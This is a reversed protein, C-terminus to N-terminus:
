LPPLPFRERRLEFGVRPANEGRLIEGGRIFGVNTFLNKELIRRSALNNALTQATLVQLDLTSFSYEVLKRVAQTIAGKGSYQREGLLYWVDATKESANLDGLAVLGVPCGDIEVIFLRNRPNMVMIGVLKASVTKGRWNLLWQNTEPDSLWSAVRQYDDEVMERIRVM